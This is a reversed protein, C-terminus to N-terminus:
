TPPSATCFICCESTARIMLLIIRWQIEAEGKLNRQRNCKHCISDIYDSAIDNCYIKTAMTISTVIILNLKRLRINKSVEAEFYENKTQNM